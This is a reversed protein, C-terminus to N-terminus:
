NSNSKYRTVKTLLLFFLLLLSHWFRNNQLIALLDKRRMRQEGRIIAVFLDFGRQIRLYMSRQIRILYRKSKVFCKLIDLSGIELLMSQTNHLKYTKPLGLPWNTEISIKTGEFRGFHWGFKQYIEARAVYPLFRNLIKNGKHLNSSVM